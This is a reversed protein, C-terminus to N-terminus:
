ACRQVHAARGPAACNIDRTRVRERAIAKDWQNMRKYDKAQRMCLLPWDPKLKLGEEYAAIAKDYHGLNDEHVGVDFFETATKPHTLTFPPEVTPAKVFRGPNKAYSIGEASDPTQAAQSASQQQKGQTSASAPPANQASQKSSCAVSFLALLALTSVVLGAKM